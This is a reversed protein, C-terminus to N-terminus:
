LIDIHSFSIWTSVMFFISEPNQLHYCFMIRENLSKTFLIVQILSRSYGSPSNDQM